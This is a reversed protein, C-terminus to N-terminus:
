ILRAKSKASLTYVIYDTGFLLIFDSFVFCSPVACVIRAHLYVIQSCRSLKILKPFFDVSTFPTLLFLKGALIIIWGGKQSSFSEVTGTDDTRTWQAATEETSLGPHRLVGSAVKRVTNASGFNWASPVPGRHSVSDVGRMRLCLSPLGDM